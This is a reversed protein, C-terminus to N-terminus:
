VDLQLLAWVSVVACLELVWLQSGYVSLDTVDAVSPETDETVPLPEKGM